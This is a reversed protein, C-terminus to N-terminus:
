IRELNNGLMELTLDLCLARIQELQRLMPRKQPLSSSRMRSREKEREREREREQRVVPPKYWREQNALAASAAAHRAAKKNKGTGSFTLGGVGVSMTFVKDNPPGVEGTLEFDLTLKMKGAM